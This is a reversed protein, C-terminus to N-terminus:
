QSTTNFGFRVTCTIKMIKFSLMCVKYMANNYHLVFVFLVLSGLLQAFGSIARFQVYTMSCISLSNRYMKFPKADWLSLM